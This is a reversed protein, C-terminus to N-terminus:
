DGDPFEIRKVALFLGGKGDDQATGILQAGTELLYDNLLRKFIKTKIRNKKTRKFLFQSKRSSKSIFKYDILVEELDILVKM